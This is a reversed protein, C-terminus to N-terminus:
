LQVTKSVWFCKDKTFIWRFHLQMLLSPGFNPWLVLLSTSLWRSIKEEPLFSKVEQRPMWEALWVQLQVKVTKMTRLSLTAVGTTCKEMQAELSLMTKTNKTMWGPLLANLNLKVERQREKSWKSKKTQAWLACPLMIKVPLVSYCRTAHPGHSIFLRWTLLLQRLPLNAEMLKLFTALSKKPPM